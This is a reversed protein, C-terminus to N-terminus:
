DGSSLALARSGRDLKISLLTERLTMGQKSCDGLSFHLVLSLVHRQQIELILVKCSFSFSIKSKIYTLPVLIKELDHQATEEPGNMM